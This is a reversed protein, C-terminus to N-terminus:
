SQIDGHEDREIIGRIKTDLQDLYGPDDPDEPFVFAPSYLAKEAPDDNPRLFLIAGRAIKLDTSVLRNFEEQIRKKTQKPDTQEIAQARVIAEARLWWPTMSVTILPQKEKAGAGANRPVIRWVPVGASDKSSSCVTEAVDWWHSAVDDRKVLKARVIRQSNRIFFALHHPGKGPLLHTGSKVIELIRKDNEDWAGFDMGCLVTGDKRKYERIVYLTVEKGEEFINSEDTLGAHSRWQRLTEGPFRGYILKTIKYVIINNGEAAVMKARMVASARSFGLSPPFAGLQLGFRRGGAIGFGRGGFAPEGLKVAGGQVAEGGARDRGMGTQVPTDEGDFEGLSSDGFASSGLRAGSAADRGFADVGMQPPPDLGDFRGLRSDGTGPFGFGAGPAADRGSLEALSLSDPEMPEQVSTKGGSADNAAINISSDGHNAFWASLAVLVCGALAFVGVLVVKPARASPRVPPPLEGVRDMVGAVMSPRSAMTRGLRELEHILQRENRM